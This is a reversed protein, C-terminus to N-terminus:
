DYRDELGLYADQRAFLQDWTTHEYTVAHAECLVMQDDCLYPNIDMVWQTAADTCGEHACRDPEGLPVVVLNPRLICLIM